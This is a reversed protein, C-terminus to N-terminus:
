TCKHHLQRWVRSDAPLFLELLNSRSNDAMKPKHALTVIHLQVSENPNQEIEKHKKSSYNFLIAFIQLCLNRLFDYNANRKTDQSM